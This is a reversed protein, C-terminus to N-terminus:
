PWLLWLAMGLLIVAWFVDVWNVKEPETPKITSTRPRQDGRWFIMEIDKSHNLGRSEAMEELM